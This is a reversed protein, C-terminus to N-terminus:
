VLAIRIFALGLLNQPAFWFREWKVWLQSGLNKIM